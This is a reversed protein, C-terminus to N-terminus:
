KYFKTSSKKWTNELYNRALAVFGPDNSWLACTQPLNATKAITISAEKADFISVIAEPVFSFYRVEFNPNRSLSELINLIAQPFISNEAAIRIRVGRALARRYQNSFRHIAPSFRQRSTVVEISISTNSIAHSLQNIIAKKTPIIVFKAIENEIPKASYNNQLDKVLQQTKRQLDEHEATKQSMLNATVQEIPSATYISPSSLIKATLGREELEIIVRYVDQRSIKSAEAVEKVNADGLQLLVLYVRSQNLTLGLRMLTEIRIDNKLFDGKM